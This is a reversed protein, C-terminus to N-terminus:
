HRDSQHTYLVFLLVEFNVVLCICGSTMHKYLVPCIIVFYLPLGILLTFRPVVSYIAASWCVLHRIGNIYHYVLPFACTAKVPFWIMSSFNLNKLFEVYSPVDGPAVAITISAAYLVSIGVWDFPYKVAVTVVSLEHMTFLWWGFLLLNVNSWHRYTPTRHNYMLYLWEYILILPIHYQTETVFLSSASFMYMSM